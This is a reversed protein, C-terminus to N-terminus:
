FEWSLEFPPDMEAPFILFYEPVPELKEVAAKAEDYTSSVLHRGGALALYKGAYEGRRVRDRIAAYVQRHIATEREFTALDM